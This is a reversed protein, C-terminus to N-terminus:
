RKPLRYCILAGPGYGNEEANPYKEKYKKSWQQWGMEHTMDKMWTLIKSEASILAKNLFRQEYERKLDDESSTKMFINKISCIKPHYLPLQLFSNIYEKNVDTMPFEMEEAVDSLLKTFKLMFYMGKRNNEEITLFNPKDNEYVVLGHSSVTLTTGYSFLRRAIITGMYINESTAYTRILNVLPTTTLYLGTELLYKFEDDKIEMLKQFSLYEDNLKRILYKDYRSQCTTIEQNAIQVTLENPDESDEMVFVTEGDEDIPFYKPDFLWRQAPTLDEYISCEPIDPDSALSEYYELQELDSISREAAKKIDNNTENLLIKLVDMIKKSYNGIDALTKIALIRLSIAIKEQWGKEEISATKILFDIVNDSRIKQIGIACFAFFKKRYIDEDRAISLLWEDIGEVDRLVAAVYKFQSDMKTSSLIIEKFFKIIAQRCEPDSDRIISRSINDYLDVSLLIPFIAKLMGPQSIIKSNKKISSILSNQPFNCTYKVKNGFKLILPLHHYVYQKIDPHDEFIAKCDGDQLCNLLLTIHKIGTIDRSDEHISRWFAVKSTRKTDPFTLLGSIFKFFLQNFEVYKENQIFKISDNYELSGPVQLSKVFYRAAFFEQFSKHIFEFDGLFVANEECFNINQFIGIGVVDRLLGKDCIEPVLSLIEKYSLITTRQMMMHFAIKEIIDIEEKLRRLVRLEDKLVEDKTEEKERLFRRMLWTVIQIYLRTITLRTVNVLLNSDHEWISCILELNIPTSVIELINPHEKLFVYLKKGEESVIIPEENDDLFNEEKLTLNNLNKQKSLFFYDIYYGLTSKSFGEINVNLIFNNNREPNDFRSTLVRNPMNLLRNFVPVLHADVNFLEDKGDLLWLCKKLFVDNSLAKRLKELEWISLKSDYFCEKLVVDFITPPNNTLPYNQINLNRLRIFLVLPFKQIYKENTVCKLMIFKCLTSKGMGAYGQVLIKMEKKDFFNLIEFSPIKKTVIASDTIDTQQEEKDVIKGEGELASESLRKKKERISYTLVIPFKNVPINGKGFLLKIREKQICHQQLNKLINAPLLPFPESFEKEFKNFITQDFVLKTSRAVLIKLEEELTWEYMVGMRIKLGVNHSTVVCTGGKQKSSSTYGLEEIQKLSLQEDAYLAVLTKKREQSEKKSISICIKIYKQIYLQLDTLNKIPVCYPYYHRIGSIRTKHHNNEAGDGLNDIRILYQGNYQLISLYIAHKSWGCPLTYEQGGKKFYNTICLYIDKALSEIMRPYLGESQKTKENKKDKKDFLKIKETTKCVYLTELEIFIEERLIDIMERSNKIDVSFKESSGSKLNYIMIFLARIRHPLFKEEHWGELETYTQEKDVEKLGLAIEKLHVLYTAWQEEDTRLSYINTGVLRSVAYDLRLTEEDKNGGQYYLCYDLLEDLYEHTCRPRKQLLALADKPDTKKTVEDMETKFEIGITKYPIQVRMGFSLSLQTIGSSDNSVKMEEQIRTEMLNEMELKAKYHIKVECKLLSKTDTKKELEIFQTESVLLPKKKELGCFHNIGNHFIPIAEGAQLQNALQLQTSSSKLLLYVQIKLGFLDNIADITTIHRGGSFDRSFPIYGRAEKLYFQVYDKFVDERYCYQCIARNAQLVAQYDQEFEITLVSSKESLLALLEPPHKGHTEKEGLASRVKDVKVSLDAEKNQLTLFRERIDSTLLRQCARNERSPHTDSLGLYLFQRIEHVFATRVAETPNDLLKQVLADRTFTEIGVAHFFCDGDGATPKLTFSFIEGRPNQFQYSPSTSEQASLFSSPTLLQYVRKYEEAQLRWALLSDLEIQSPPVVTDNKTEPM